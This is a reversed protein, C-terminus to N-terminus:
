AAARLPVAVLHIVPRIFNLPIVPAIEVSVDAVDLVLEAELARWATITPYPLRTMMLNLRARCASILATLSGSFGPQGISLEMGARLDRVAVNGCRNVSAECLALNDSALWSTIDRVCRVGVGDVTQLLWAGMDILEDSDDTPNWGTHQAISLVNFYKRTLPLGVPASAQAGLILAPLFRAEFTAREGATNFRDFFQVGVRLHQTNLAVIQSKIDDKPAVTADPVGAALNSIGVAGDAEDVGVRERLHTALLAHLAPSDTLLGISDVHLKHCLDLAHQWHTTLATGEIGGRLFVQPPGATVAVPGQGGAVKVASVLSSVNNFWNVVAALDGYLSLATPDLISSAAQIDLNTPAQLVQGTVNTWFFGVTSSTRKSNFYDAVKQLTTHTAVTTRAATGSIVVTGNVDATVLVEIQAYTNGVGVGASPSAGDMTIAESVVAGGATRGFIAVVDTSGNPGALTFTTGVEVFMAQGIYCGRSNSAAPMILIDAAGGPNAADDCITINGAAASLVGASTRLVIGFTSGALFVAVGQQISADLTFSESQPAGAATLGYVTLVKGTDGANANQVRIASNGALAVVIHTSVNAMSRTAAGTVQGSSAVAGTMSTLWGYTGPAYRLTSLAVGGLDDQTETTDEFRVTVKRYRNLSTGTEIQVNVQETFEGYDRSSLTVAALADAGVLSATSQTAPNVKMAIVQGAGGPVAPDVSPDFAMAGAERLDGSRLAARLKRPSAYRLFDGTEVITPAAESGVPKGGVSTGILAITGAELPTVAELGSTDLTTYVGPTKKLKGRYFTGSAM